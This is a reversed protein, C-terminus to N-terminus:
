LVRLYMRRLLHSRIPHVTTPPQRRLHGGVRKKADSHPDAGVGDGGSSFNLLKNLRIDSYAAQVGRSLGSGEPLICCRRDWEAGEGSYYGV